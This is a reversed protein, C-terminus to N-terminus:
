LGRRILTPAAIGQIDADSCGTFGQDFTGLRDLLDELRDPHPSKARYEQPCIPSM